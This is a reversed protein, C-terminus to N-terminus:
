SRDDFFMEDIAFGIFDLRRIEIGCEKFFIPHCVLWRRHIFDILVNVSNFFHVNLANDKIRLRIRVRGSLKTHRGVDGPAFNLRQRMQINHDNAGLDDQGRDIQVAKVRQREPVRQDELAGRGGSTSTDETFVHLVAARDVPDLHHVGECYSGLGELADM